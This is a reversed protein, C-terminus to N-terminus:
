EGSDMAGFRGRFYSLAAGSRSEFREVKGIILVHDGVHVREHARCYLQSLAGTLGPALDDAGAALDEPLLQSQGRMAVRRALPEQDAALINITFTEARRFRVGRDSGDGLCFLVLPPDLSVSTFSNVVLGHAVGAEAVSVVVVGTPFAGLAQRYPPKAESTM